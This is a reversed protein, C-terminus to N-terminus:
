LLQNTSGSHVACSTLIQSRLMTPRFGPSVHRLSLLTRIMLGAGILLVLSLGVEATILVSLVSRRSVSSWISGGSERRIAGRRRSASCLGTVVSALLTFGRGVMGDRGAETPLYEGAPAHKHGTPESLLPGRTSGPPPASRWCREGGIRSSGAGAPGSPSRRAGAREAAEEDAAGRWHLAQIPGKDELRLGRREARGRELELAFERAARGREGLAPDLSPRAPARPSCSSATTARTRSSTSESWSARRSRAGARSAPWSRTAGRWSASRRRPRAPM